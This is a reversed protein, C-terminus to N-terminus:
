LQFEALDHKSIIIMMTRSYPFFFFVLHDDKDDDGLSVIALCTRRRHVPM